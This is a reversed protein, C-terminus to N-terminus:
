TDTRRIQLLVNEDHWEVRESHEFRHKLEAEFAGFARELEEDTYLSFTSYHKGSVQALLRDLSSIRRYRFTKIAILRLDETEHIWAEM